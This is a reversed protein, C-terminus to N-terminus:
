YVIITWNAFQLYTLNEPSRGTRELLIEILWKEFISELLTCRLTYVQRLVDDNEASARDYLGKIELALQQMPPILRISPFGRPLIEKELTPLDEWRELVRVILAACTELDDKKPYDRLLAEEAEMEVFINSLVEQRVFLRMFSEDEESWDVDTRKTPHARKAGYAEGLRAEAEFMWVMYRRLEDHLVTYPEAVDLIALLHEALPYPRCGKEKSTHGVITEKL